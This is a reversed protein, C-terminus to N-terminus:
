EFLHWGFGADDFDIIRVQDGKVLINEPVLDAHILGFRDPTHGFRILDESIRARVSNFLGRQATSLTGLEWFRGWLPAEGVLGAECWSHRRFSAPPLWKSAHNHMRAALQGLTAYIRDVEASHGSLGHEVSGLPQGEIWEFLDVQRAGPVSAFHILEFANGARSPIPQPVEIGSAALANMWTLESLLAADSHYGPRHVRLVARRHDATYVAYVANERVKLAELRVCELPWLRVATLALQHLRAAQETASLQAFTEM